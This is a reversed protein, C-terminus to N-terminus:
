WVRCNVRYPSIRPSHCQLSVPSALASVCSFRLWGSAAPCCAKWRLVSAVPACNRYTRRLLRPVPALYHADADHHVRCAIHRRVEDFLFVDGDQRHGHLDAIRHQGVHAVLLGREVEEGAVGGGLGVVRFGRGVGHLLDVVQEQVFEHEVVVVHEADAGRARAAPDEVVRLLGAVGDEVVVLRHARCGAVGRRERQPHDVALVHEGPDAHERDLRCPHAGGPLGRRLDARVQLVQRVVGM